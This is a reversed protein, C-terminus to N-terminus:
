PQHAPIPCCAGPGRVAQPPAAGPRDTRHKRARQPADGPDRQEDGAIRSVLRQEDNAQEAYNEAADIQRRYVPWRQVAEHQRRENREDCADRDFAILKVCEDGRDHQDHERENESETVVQVIDQGLRERYSVFVDVQDALELGLGRRRIM